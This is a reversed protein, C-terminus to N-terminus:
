RSAGPRHAETTGRKPEPAFRTRPRRSERVLVWTGLAATPALHVLHLLLAFALAPEHAVGLGALPLMAALEFPGANGPSVAIANAAATAVVALAALALTPEIRAASLTLWAVAVEAGWGAFGWAFSRALARPEHVAALGSRLRGVLDTSAAFGREATAAGPPPLGPPADEEEPDAPGPRLALVVAAGAAAAAATFALANRAWEPLPTALGLLLVLPVLSATGVVYDVAAGGIAAATSIGARRALLHSRVLDGARAPVAIGVTFGAVMAAFVDRLRVAPGPARVVAAWRAAHFALNAVNALMALALDGPRARALAALVAALDVKAAAFVAFAAVVALGVLRLAWRRRPREEPPVALARLRQWPGSM